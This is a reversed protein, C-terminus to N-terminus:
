IPELGSCSAFADICYVDFCADCAAQDSGLCEVVCHERGCNFTDIYCGLCGDSLGAYVTGEFCTKVCETIDGGALGIDRCPGLACERVADGTDSFVGGDAMGADPRTIALDTSSLCQDVPPPGSDPVGNGDNSGCASLLAISSAFLVLSARHHM